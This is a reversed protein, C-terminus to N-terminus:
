RFSYHKTCVRIKELNQLAKYKKVCRANNQKRQKNTKTIYMQTNIITENSETSRLKTSLTNKNNHLLFQM